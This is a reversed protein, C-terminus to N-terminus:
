GSEENLRAEMFWLKVPDSVTWRYVRDKSRGLRPFVARAQHNGIDGLSAWRESEWNRGGDNSWDLMVKPQSGQGTNLGVGTEFILELRDHEIWQNGDAVAPATCSAIHPEGFEAYVEPSLEGMVGNAGTILTGYAAAIFDAQWRSLGTSGRDHWLQTAEDFVFTGDSFKFAVFAHGRETWTEVVCESLTGAKARLQFQVEQEHKSIRVPNYGDLKYAIADNGLFYVTNAKKGVAFQGACGVEGVGSGTREFPFDADGSNFWVEFSEEGFLFLERHDVIGAVLDDPASEASAFDLADVDTSDNIATIGFSDGGPMGFITYGDLYALWTAGPFDPDTIQALTTGNWVYAASGNSITLQAGNTTISVRGQGPIAGLATGTGNAAVQYLTTSLVVYLVKRMLGYGRFTGGDALQALTRIGASRPVAVPTKAGVPAQQLYCNLLRQSSLPLSESVASTVGFPIRM